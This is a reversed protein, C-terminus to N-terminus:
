NLLKDITARVKDSNWNAAGTKDIVINGQKDILFTRPISSIDFYKPYQSIPNHVEFSYNHKELFSNIIESTENSVFYFSVKGKYDAYLNHLSPMEAICPPCWTAWFNIIVVKGKEGKFNITDLTNIEKLEWNYDELRERNNEKVISPGFFAIGKNLFVQIPKRTQPVILLAILAVFFINSWQKKSIKMYCFYCM